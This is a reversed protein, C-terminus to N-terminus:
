ASHLLIQLKNFSAFDINIHRDDRSVDARANYKLTAQIDFASNFAKDKKLPM